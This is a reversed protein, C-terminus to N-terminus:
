IEQLITDVRRDSFRLDGLQRLRDWIMLPPPDFARWSLKTSQPETSQEGCIRQGIGCGSPGSASVHFRADWSWRNISRKGEVLGARNITQGPAFNM